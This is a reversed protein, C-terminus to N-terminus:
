SEEVVVPVEIRAIVLSDRSPDAFKDLLFLDTVLRQDDLERDRFPLAIDDAVFVKIEGCLVQLVPVVVGSSPTVFEALLLM